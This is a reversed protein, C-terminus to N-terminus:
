LSLAKQIVQQFQKQRTLRPTKVNSGPKSNLPRIRGFATM